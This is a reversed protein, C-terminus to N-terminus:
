VRPFFKSWSTSVLLYGRRFPIGREAYWKRSNLFDRADDLIKERIGDDLIISCLPRKPRSAVFRWENRTDSAFIFISEAKALKWTAKADLLLRNVIKQDRALIRTYRGILNPLVEPLPPIGVQDHSHRQHVDWGATSEKDSAYLSRSVM